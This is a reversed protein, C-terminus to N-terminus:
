NFASLRPSAFCGPGAKGTAVTLKSSPPAEVSVRDPTVDNVDANGADDAYDTRHHMCTRGQDNNDQARRTRMTLDQSTCVNIYSIMPVINLKFVKVSLGGYRPVSRM